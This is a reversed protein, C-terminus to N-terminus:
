SRYNGIRHITSIKILKYYIFEIIFVILCVIVCFLYFHFVAGVNEMSLAAEKNTISLNVTMNRNAFSIIKEYYSLLGSSLVRLGREKIIHLLVDGSRTFYSFTVLGIPQKVVHFEDYIHSFNAIIESEFTEKFIIAAVNRSESNLVAQLPSKVIVFNKFDIVCYQQRLGEKFNWQISPTIFITFNRHCLEDLSDIQKVSDKDMFITTIFAEFGARIMFSFWIWFLFHLRLPREMVIGQGIFISFLKYIYSTFRIPTRRICNIAYPLICLLIFIIFIFVWTELNFMSFMAFFRPDKQTKVVAILTAHILPYSAEVNKSLNHNHVAGFFLDIDYQALEKMLAYGEKAIPDYRGVTEHSTKTYFKINYVSRLILELLFVEYGQFPKCEHNNIKGHAVKLTFPPAIRVGINQFCQRCFLHQYPLKTDTLCDYNMRINPGCCLPKVSYSSLLEDKFDTLLSASYLERQRLVKVMSDTDGNDIGVIIIKAASNIQSCICKDLIFTLQTASNVFILHQKFDFKKEICQENVCSSIELNFLRSDVVRPQMLKYIAQNWLKESYNVHRYVVLDNYEFFTIMYNVLCKTKYGSEMHYNNQFIKLHKSATILQLYTFFVINVLKINSYM